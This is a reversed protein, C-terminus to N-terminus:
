GYLEGKYHHHWITRVINDIQDLAFAGNILEYLGSAVVSLIPTGSSAPAASM